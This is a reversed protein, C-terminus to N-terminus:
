GGGNGSAWSRYIFASRLPRGTSACPVMRLHNFSGPPPCARAPTQSPLVCPAQRTRLNTPAPLRARQACAAQKHMLLPLLAGDVAPVGAGM